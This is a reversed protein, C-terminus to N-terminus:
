EACQMSKESFGLWYFYFPSLELLQCLSPYVQAQQQRPHLLFVRLSELTIGTSCALGRIVYVSGTFTANFNTLSIITQEIVTLILQENGNTDNSLSSGVKGECISDAADSTFNFNNAFEMPGILIGSM